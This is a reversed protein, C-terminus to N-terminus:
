DPRPGSDRGQQLGAGAAASSPEITVRVLKGELATSILLNVLEEKRQLTAPVQRQAEGTRHTHTVTNRITCTACCVTKGCGEPLLAHACELAEGGLLGILDSPQRGLLNGAPKNVAVVRVDGEVLIVPFGFRELYEGYSMGEWQASFHDACAPCMGHTVSSDALPPKTGLDKRCYSCVIRV